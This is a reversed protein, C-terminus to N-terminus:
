DNIWPCKEPPYVKEWNDMRKYNEYIEEGASIDKIATDSGVDYNENKISHNCFTILWCMENPSLFHSGNYWSPWRELILDRVEPLLKNRSAWPLTFWQFGKKYFEPFLGLKQGAKIDRIAIIGVGHVKSPGIKVKVTKNLYDIQERNSLYKALSKQILHKVFNM